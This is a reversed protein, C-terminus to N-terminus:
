RKKQTVSPRLVFCCVASQLQTVRHRPIGHERPEERRHALHPGAGSVPHKALTWTAADSIHTAMRMAPPLSRKRRGTNRMQRPAPGPRSAFRRRCPCLARRLATHARVRADVFTKLCTPSMGAVSEDAGTFKLTKSSPSTTSRSSAITEMWTRVASYHICSRMSQGRLHHRQWGWQWPEEGSPRGVPPQARKWM